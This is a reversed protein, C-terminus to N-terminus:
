ETPVSVLQGDMDHWFASVIGLGDLRDAEENTVLFYRRDGKVSIIRDGFGSADYQQWAESVTHFAMGQITIESTM